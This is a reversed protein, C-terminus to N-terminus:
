VFLLRYILTVEVRASCSVRMMDVAVVMLGLRVGLKPLSWFRSCTRAIRVCLWFICALSVWVVRMYYHSVLGSRLPVVRVVIGQIGMSYQAVMLIHRAPVGEFEPMYVSEVVELMGVVVVSCTWVVM